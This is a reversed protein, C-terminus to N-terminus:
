VDNGEQGKESLFPAQKLDALYGEAEVALRPSDFTANVGRAVALLSLVASMLIM